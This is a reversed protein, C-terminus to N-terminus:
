GELRASYFLLQLKEFGGFCFGFLLGSGLERGLNRCGQMYDEFSRRNSEMWLVWIVALVNWVWLVKAMMGKGFALNQCCGGLFFFLASNGARTEWNVLRGLYNRGCFLVLKVICLYM